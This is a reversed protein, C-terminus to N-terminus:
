KLLEKLQSDIAYGMSEILLAVQKAQQLEGLQILVIVRAQLLRLDNKNVTLGKDIIKLASLNEGMLSLQRSISIYQQINGPDDLISESFESLSEAADAYMMTSKKEEDSLPLEALSTFVSAAERYESLLLNVRGLLYRQKYATSDMAISMKLDYVAPLYQGLEIFLEARETLVAPNAAGALTDLTEIKNWIASELDIKMQEEKYKLINSDSKIAEAIAIAAKSYQYENRYCVARLFQIEANDGSASAIFDLCYRAETYSNLEILKKVASIGEDYSLTNSMVLSSYGLRLQYNGIDDAPDLNELMAIYKDPSNCSLLFLFLPLFRAFKM